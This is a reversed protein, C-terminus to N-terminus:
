ARFLIAWRCLRARLSLRLDDDDEDEHDHETPPTADFHPPSSLLLLLIPLLCSPLNAQIVPLLGLVLVVVVVLVILTVLQPSAVQLLSASFRIAIVNNTSM